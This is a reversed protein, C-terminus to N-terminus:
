KDPFLPQEKFETTDVQLKDSYKKPNLKSLYWKRTDVKLRRHMIMDGTTIETGRDTVKTTTGEETTDAIQLMEDFLYEAMLEKAHAYQKVKEEDEKLWKWFTRTSPMGSEKLINIVAEGEIVRICISEFIKDKQKKSYAM